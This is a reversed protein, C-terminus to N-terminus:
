GVQICEGSRLDWFRVTRDSAASIVTDGTVCGDDLSGNNMYENAQRVTSCVALQSV